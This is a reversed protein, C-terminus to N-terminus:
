RCPQLHMCPTPPLALSCYALTGSLCEQRSQVLMGDGLPYLALGLNGELVLLLPATRGLVLLYFEFEDRCRLRLLISNCLQLRLALANCCLLSEEGLLLRM